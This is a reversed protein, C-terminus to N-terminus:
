SSIEEILDSLLVNKQSKDALNKVAVVGQELEKPGIIIVFPIGRRDAYKLQRKLKVGPDPYVEVAIGANRLADAVRLSESEFGAFVTILVKPLSPSIEPFKGLSRLVEEIVMDGMAFGVGSVPSKGGVEATLRDYRGGGFLARLKGTTEWGEFVIGTYYDLGRVVTPDFEVYEAAGSKQLLDFVELLRDSDAFQRNAFVDEFRTLQSRDLGEETLLEHFVKRKVKDRKDVIKLIRELSARPIGIELLRKEVLKRDNVRIKVEDSTLGIEKFFSIAIMIMEVDALPTNPGLLDINWQFFERGRGKQPREYRYFRGFSYWRVPFVLSHEKKAVMRALSPTLEPRLTLIEGKRDELTFAQKKVLEEGSKAAYLEIREIIPAEYEQYGFSESVSSVVRYFWKEFSWIEPYFDRTGKVPRILKKANM